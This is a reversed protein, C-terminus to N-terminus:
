QGLIPRKAFVLVGSLILVILYTSFERDVYTITAFGLVLLMIGLIRQFWVFKKIKRTEAAEKKARRREDAIAQSIACEREYNEQEMVLLEINVESM